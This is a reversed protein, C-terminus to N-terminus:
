FLGSDEPVSCDAAHIGLVLYEIRQPGLREIQEACERAVARCPLALDDGALQRLAAALLGAGQELDERALVQAAADLAGALEPMAQRARILKTRLASAEQSFATGPESGARRLLQVFRHEQGVLRAIALAFELRADQTGSARLLALLPGAAETAGLRGLASALAMQLGVDEETALRELLLPLMTRDGLSGLSRICHAQVSRYRSELGRRLAEVAGEGDLRGLAWAALTSLSPENGELVEILAGTLHPDEGHRAIAVVAEFRVYFRPDHLAEILEEVTLPSRTSGLRETGAITQREDRARRYRVLSGLAALPNGRVFMGAFQRTTVLSDPAVARLLLIGFLPLTIGLFFLVTYPDLRVIGWQGTVGSTLDVLWGGLVQGLAGAIGAWAYYLAMYPSSKEPPVIEVFLLRGSGLNWGTNVLGQVVAIGLALYLSVAAGRPMLLWAVPALPLLYAGLMMVPKSGYRDALWGWVYGSAVAGILVGTDLWVAQNASLGVQEIMFLPVFSGLPVMALTVVAIGLLYRVFGRDRAALLMDRASGHVAHADKAPAGGPLKGSTWVSLLGSVVGISILVMFPGLDPDPGLIWGAALVAAMGALNSLISRIASVKGRMGDPIMEQSWPYYATFGVARALGFAGVAVVILALTAQAGFRSLFTPVLLLLLALATRITFSILFVRKHGARAVPAAIFVAVVGFFPLLSLLTGIQAKDLGVTNLFLVFVSGFFTYTAFVTNSVSWATGWPLGRLKEVTTPGQGAAMERSSM